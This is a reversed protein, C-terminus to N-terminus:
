KIKPNPWTVWTQCIKNIKWQFSVMSPVICYVQGGAFFDVWIGNSHSGHKDSMQTM